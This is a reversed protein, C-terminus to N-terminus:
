DGEQQSYDEECVLSRWTGGRLEFKSSHAAPNRIPLVTYDGLTPQEVVYLWYDFEESVRDEEHARKLANTFQPRSLEVTEAGDWARGRGKVEIRRLLRRDPHGEPHTFSDIDHGAQRGAKTVPYRGKQREYEVVANRYPEDGTGGTGDSPDQDGSPPEEDTDGPMLGTALLREYMQRYYKLKQERDSSTHSGGSSSDTDEELDGGSEQDGSEGAEEPPEGVSESGRGGGTGTDREGDDVWPTGGTDHEDDTTAGSGIESDGEGQQDNDKQGSEVTKEDRSGDDTEQEDQPTETETEGTAYIQAGHLAQMEINHETCFDRLCRRFGEEGDLHAFLQTIEPAIADLDMRGEMEHRRLLAGAASAMFELPKPTVLMQCDKFTCHVEWSDRVSGEDLVEKVIRRCVYLESDRRKPRETEGSAFACLYDQIMDLHEQWVEPAREQEPAYTRTEFRQTLLRLGLEQAIEMQEDRDEGLHGRTALRIEGDKLLGSFRPEKLDDFYVDNHDASAWERSDTFVKAGELERRWRERLSSDEDLNEWLLRYARPLVRRVNSADPEENWVWSLFDLAQSATAGPPIDYIQHVLDAVEASLSGEPLRDMALLWGGLDTRNPGVAGQVLRAVSVRSARDVTLLTNPVPILAKTGILNKLTRDKEPDEVAEDVADRLIDAVREPPTQASCRRLRQVASVGSVSTGFSVGCDDLLEILDSPLDAVPAEPRTEDPESLVQESSYAGTGDKAFIWANNQLEEVWRASGLERKKVESTYYRVYVYVHDSNARLETQGEYIWEAIDQATSRDIGMDVADEFEQPMCSDVRLYRRNPIKFGGWKESHSTERVRPPQQIDRFRKVLETKSVRETDHQIRFPGKMQTDMSEFFSRWDADSATDSHELYLASVPLRDPFLRRRAKSAYPASLVAEAWPVCILCEEGICLVKQILQARQKAKQRVWETVAIIRRIQPDSPERPITDWWETIVNELDPGGVNDLYKKATYDSSVRHCFSWPLSRDPAPLFPDFWRRVPPSDAPVINWDPPLREADQRCIMMGSRAPLCRLRADTWSRDDLLGTLARVVTLLRKTREEGHLEAWEGVAGDEWKRELEEPRLEDLLDLERVCKLTRKGLLEACAVGPGFLDWPRLERKNLKRLPKPLLRAQSPQVFVVGDETLSPIFALKSLGDALSNKFEDEAVWSSHSKQTASLDPLASLARGIVGNDLSRRGCVWSVYATLLRPVQQLIERHWPDGELEMLDQRNTVLLWDAQLHLGIPFEVGTPLLAYARGSQPPEPLGEDDLACFADVRRERSAEERRRAGEAPDEDELRLRRHELFRGIAERTPQYGASFMVWRHDEHTNEDIADLYLVEVGDVDDQKGDKRLLWKHENWHLEQVGRRALLPLLDLGDSLVQRVDEGLPELDELRERLVFRCTMGPGPPDLDDNPEPLVCGVWDRYINGFEENRFVPVHFSFRWGASSVDVTQFSRFVAKFGIGMFGVTGAGKTSIGKSCLAEVQEESFPDGDHEFILQSREDELSLHINKAGADVANQLLEAVYLWRHSFTQELNGIAGRGKKNDYFKKNETWIKRIKERCAEQNM